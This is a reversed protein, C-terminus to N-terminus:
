DRVECLSAGQQWDDALQNLLSDAQSKSLDLGTFFNMIGIANERSVGIWYHLFGPILIVEMGFESRSNRVGPLFAWRSAALTGSSGPVTAATSLQGSVVGSTAMQRM